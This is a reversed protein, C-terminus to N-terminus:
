SLFGHSHVVDIMSVILFINEVEKGGDNGAIGVGELFIQQHQGEGGFIKYLRELKEGQVGCRQRWM